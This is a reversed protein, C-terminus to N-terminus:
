CQDIRDVSLLAWFLLVKFLLVKFLLAWFLALAPHCRYTPKGCKAHATSITAMDTLMAFVILRRRPRPECERPQIELLAPPIARRFDQHPGAAALLKWSSSSHHGPLLRASRGGPKRPILDSLLSPRAWPSCGLATGNAAHVHLLAM